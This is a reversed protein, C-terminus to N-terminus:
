FDHSLLCPQITDRARTLLASKEGHVDPSRNIDTSQDCFIELRNICYM